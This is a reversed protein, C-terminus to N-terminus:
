AVVADIQQLKIDFARLKVDQVIHDRRFDRDCHEADFKVAGRAECAVTQDPAQMVRSQGRRGFARYNGTRGLSVHEHITGPSRCRKLWTQLQRGPNTWAVTAAPGNATGFSGPYTISNSGRVDCKWQTVGFSRFLRRTAKSAWSFAQDCRLFRQECSHLPLRRLQQRSGHLNRGRHQNRRQNHRQGGAAIVRNHMHGGTGPPCFSGASCIM